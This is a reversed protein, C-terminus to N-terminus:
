SHKHATTRNEDAGNKSGASQGREMSQQGHTRQGNPAVMGGVCHGSTTVKDGIRIDPCRGRAFPTCLGFSFEGEHQMLILTEIICSPKFGRNSSPQPFQQDIHTALQLSQMLEAIVLLGARSTLAANTTTIKHPLINMQFGQTAGM